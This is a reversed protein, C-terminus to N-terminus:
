SGYELTQLTAHVSAAAARDPKGADTHPLADVWAIQRPHKFTALRNGLHARLEADDLPNDAAVLLACVREGWTPDAASFVLADTIAPHAHLAHEVELPDINEGGSVIVDDARGLVHLNGDEDIRGRDSTRLWGDAVFPQPGNLPRYGTM